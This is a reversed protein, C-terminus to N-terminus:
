SPGLIEVVCQSDNYDNDVNDEFGILQPQQATGRLVKGLSQFWPENANPRSRKHWGTVVFTIPRGENNILAWDGRDRGYNGKEVIKADGRDERYICIANEWVADFAFSLRLLARHPVTVAFAVNANLPLTNDPGFPM